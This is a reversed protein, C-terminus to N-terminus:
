DPHETAQLTAIAGELSGINRIAQVSWGEWVLRPRAREREVQKRTELNRDYDDHLADLAEQLTPVTM